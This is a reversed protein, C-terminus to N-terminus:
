PKIQKELLAILNKKARSLLSETASVTTNLAEAIEAQSLGEMKQLIFAAMQKPPIKKLAAFLLRSNEKRDLLIGPHEFSQLDEAMGASFFGPKLKRLHDLSQNVAVRYVWTKLGAEERFSSISEFIKIFVEQTIDDAEDENQVIGLCTNYVMTQWGDVFASFVKEDQAKLGQIIEAETM